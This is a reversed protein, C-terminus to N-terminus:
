ANSGRAKTWTGPAKDVQKRYKGPSPENVLVEKSSGWPDTHKKAKSQNQQKNTSM